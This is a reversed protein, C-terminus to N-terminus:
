YFMKSLNLICIYLQNIGETTLYSIMTKPSRATKLQRTPHTTSKLGLSEKQFHDRIVVGLIKIVNNTSYQYSM